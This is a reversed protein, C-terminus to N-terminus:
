QVGPLCCCCCCCLGHTHTRSHKQAPVKFDTWSSCETWHSLQTWTILTHGDGSATYFMYWYAFIGVTAFGVYVGVVMYRFFVWGNILVDDHKRPPKRMIDPDAPNFGLATAPPGPSVAACLVCCLVGSLVCCLSCCVHPSSFPVAPFLAPYCVLAHYGDTVLKVWLLQVCCLM